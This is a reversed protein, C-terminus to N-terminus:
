SCLHLCLTYSYLSYFSHFSHFWQMSWYIYVNSFDKNHKFLSTLRSSTQMCVIRKGNWCYKAVKTIDNVLSFMKHFLVGYFHHNFTCWTEYANEWCFQLLVIAIVICCCWMQLHMMIMTLSNNNNNLSKFFLM